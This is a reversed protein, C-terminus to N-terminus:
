KFSLFKAMLTIELDPVVVSVEIEKRKNRSISSALIPLSAALFAM